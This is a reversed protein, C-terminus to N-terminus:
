LRIKHSNLFSDHLDDQTMEIQRTAVYMYQIYQVQEGFQKKSCKSFNKLRALYSGAVGARQLQRSSFCAM